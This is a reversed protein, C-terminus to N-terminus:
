WRAVGSNFGARGGPGGGPPVAGVGVAISVPHGGGRARFREGVGAGAHVDVGAVLGDAADLLVDAAGVAGADDVVGTAERPQEAEVEVLLEEPAVVAVGDEDGAGVAHAGLDQERDLHADVVGDADVADRHVDVVEDDLPGLGQEEEVVDADVADVGRHDFADDRADGLAALDRAAREDPPLGGFQGIDVLLAVVVERAERQADDLQAPRHVRGADLRAIDDEPELGVAHVAVPVREHALDDAGPPRLSEL